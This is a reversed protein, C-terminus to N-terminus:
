RRKGGGVARFSVEWAIDAGDGAPWGLVAHGSELRKVTCAPDAKCAGPRMGKPVALTVMYARADRNVSRAKLTRTTADWSEDAIDVAGQVVHRSSGIVQPRAVAQRLAITLSAHPDLKATIADTVDAVPADRWVDYADYRKSGAGLGLAALPLTIQKPEDEWNALVVTWWAPAGEVIWGGAPRDRRVSWLGGGGYTRIAVVNEGGWNLADGPLAYRRFAERAGVHHPPFDGTQGVKTGNVFTEDADDIKGLELM